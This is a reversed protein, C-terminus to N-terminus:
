RGFSPLGAGPPLHARGAARRRFRRRPRDPAPPQPHQGRRLEGAAHHRLVRQVGARKRRGALHSTRRLPVPLVAGGRRRQRRGSGRLVRGAPSTMERLVYDATKEATDLHAASGTAAYAAAYALILLANDYLMKEFHPALFYRDTSYRSFGYGIQDFIGGRRMQTLTTEAMRLTRDHAKLKSYALLFLLNHPTPFKPADGFGGYEEDYAASFWGVAREPLDSHPAAEGAPPMASSLQALADEASHLLAPRNDAWQRAITRLLDRFGILGHRARPPFYTGAFFPKQDPTLFLSTPWGGSGTFAQCVAMYVSDIDPREEGIWRSPSLILTSCAPPKRMRSARAPWSTACHCTSYGISLFVPKNERKARAFAEESWPYWDVPNDAHQLLYPSTEGHLHNM